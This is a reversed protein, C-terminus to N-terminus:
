ETVQCSGGAAEIKERASKSFKDAQVTLKKTLEGDGLIKIKRRAGKVLGAERLADRDVTAGAEFRAELESLNLVAYGDRFVNTFGRKPIRRHLPMQGGEFGLKRSFGSRSKQGKEGRGATKGHGSGPGRGIRKRGRRSGKKPKLNSLEM